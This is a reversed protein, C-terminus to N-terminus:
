EVVVQAQPEVEQTLEVKEMVRTQAELVVVAERVM